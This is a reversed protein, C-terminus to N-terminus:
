FVGALTAFAFVIFLVGGTIGVTREL